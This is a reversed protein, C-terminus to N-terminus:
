NGFAIQKEAMKNYDLGLQIAWAVARSLCDAVLNEKGAVHELDTIFETIYVLQRQQRASWPEASKGISFTLSKQEVFATFKRAELLFRFHRHGSLPRPTGSQYHQIKVFKPAVAPQLFRATAV